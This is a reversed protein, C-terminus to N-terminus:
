TIKPRENWVIRIISPWNIQQMEKFINDVNCFTTFFWRYFHTNLRYCCGCTSQISNMPKHKQSLFIWYNLIVENVWYSIPWKEFKKERFHLSGWLIQYEVKQSLSSIFKSKSIIGTICSSLFSSLLRPKLFNKEM